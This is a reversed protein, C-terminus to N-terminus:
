RCRCGVPDAASPLVLLSLPLLAGAGTSLGDGGPATPAPYASRSLPIFCSACSYPYLPPKIFALCLAQTHLCLHTPGPFHDPTHTDPVSMPILCPLRGELLEEEEEHHPRM